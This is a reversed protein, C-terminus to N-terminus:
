AATPIEFSEAGRSKHGGNRIMDKAIPGAENDGCISIHENFVVGLMAVGLHELTSSAKRLRRMSGNRAAVLIAGDTYPAILAAALANQIPSAEILIVEYRLRAMDLLNRMAGLDLQGARGDPEINIGLVDLDDLSTRTVCQDLPRGELVGALGPRQNRYTKVVLQAEVLNMVELEVVADFLLQERQRRMEPTLMQEAREIPYGLEFLTERLMVESAAAHERVRLLDAESIRGSHRLADEFSPPSAANMRHTLHRREMDLDILLTGIGGTAFSAGLAICLDTTGSGHQASSILAVHQRTGLQASQLRVRIHHIDEIALASTVGSDPLVQTVRGLSPAQGVCFVAQDLHRCKDDLMAAIGLLMIGLAFGAVTGVAAAKFRARDVPDTPLMAPNVVRVSGGFGSELNLQDIRRATTDIMGRVDVLQDEMGELSLSLKSVAQEGEDIQATLQAPTLTRTEEGAPAPPPPNLTANYQAAAEDIQKHLAAITGNIKIVELHRPSFRSLLEAQYTRAKALAVLAEQMAPDHAAIQAATLVSPALASPAEAATLQQLEQRLTDTQQRATLRETTLRAQEARLADRRATLDDLRKQLLAVRHADNEIAGQQQLQMYAAVLADVLLKALAPNTHDFSVEILQTGNPHAISLHRNVDDITWQATVQAVSPEAAVIGALARELVRTSQLVAVQSNIFANYNRTAPSDNQEFLVPEKMPAIEITATARYLTPTRCWNWTALVAACILLLLMAASWRGHLSHRLRVAFDSSPPTELLLAM